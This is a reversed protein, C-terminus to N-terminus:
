GYSPEGSAVGSSMVEEVEDVEDVEDVEMVVWGAQMREAWAYGVYGYGGDGWGRGWSNRVVFREQVDDYGVMVVAHGGRLRTATVAATGATVGPTPPEPWQGTRETDGWEVCGYVPLACAIPYRASLVRRIAEVTPEVRAYRVMPYAWASDYTDLAPTKHLHRTHFPHEAEECMGTARLVKLAQRLTCGSDAGLTGAAERAAYYGFLRSVPPYQRAPASPRAPRHMLMYDYLCAVASVSSCGLTADDVVDPCYPRLDVVPSPRYVLTPSPPLPPLPPLASRSFVSSMLSVHSPASPAEPVAPVVKPLM